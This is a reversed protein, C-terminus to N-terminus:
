PMSRFGCVPEHNIMDWYPVLSLASEEPKGPVPVRNQRTMVMSTAWKYAEWTFVALVCPPFAMLRLLCVCLVRLILRVDAM